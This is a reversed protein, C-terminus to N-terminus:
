ACTARAASTPWRPTAAASASRARPIGGREDRAIATALLGPTGPTMDEGPNTRGPAAAGAAASESTAGASAPAAGGTAAQAGAKAGREAGDLTAETAADATREVRREVNRKAAESAARKLRDGFGQADARVAGASLALAAVVYWHKTHSM